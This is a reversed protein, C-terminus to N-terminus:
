WAHHKSIHHSCTESIDCESNKVKTIDILTSLVRMLPDTSQPGTNECLCNGSKRPSAMKGPSQISRRSPSGLQVGSIFSLKSPSQEREESANRNLSSMRAEGCNLDVSSQSWNNLNFNLFRNPNTFSRNRPTIQESEDHCEMCYLDSHIVDQYKNFSDTKFTNIASLKSCVCRQQDTVKDLYCHLSRSLQSTDLSRGTKVSPISLSRCKRCASGSCKSTSPRVNKCTKSIPADCKEFITLSSSMNTSRCDAKPPCAVSSMLEANKVLPDCVHKSMLLLLEVNLCEEVFFGVLQPSFM